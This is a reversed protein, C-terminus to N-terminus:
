TKTIAEDMNYITQIVQMLAALSVTDKIEQHPYEGAEIFKKAKEPSQQFKEKESKYYATLLSLEESKSGRCVILLFAKKIKEEESSKGLMLREALVRSAELMLPENLLLLAQLPTNTVGRKVECQDRNSGDMILMGPPPVTRKIFSYLGRRYLKDGHDQVYRALVGRGSTSSEWIGKPQYVKMSPGGIEKVLLGSSALALDRVGEASLRIRPSRSLLINDPDKERQKKSITSSQQYTASMVLQKMLRKINWGNERFDVALWDLLEPHSPLEGQMGFDGSTKVLGRGFLEQWMRNVFVRATLPNKEHLLWKALALRNNGFATSDFPLIANPLGVDVVEGHADYNGRVLVYTPRKWTTDKMVMVEVPTTDKKNIFTLINEVEESTIKIKPPDALSALQIDGLLGKEPVRNFFAFTRYYDKQSIPDYKHDHCHACEFTLALFAKAFTNTRDTVYEIRYEEDIVGGEQTIKHNRNFGTALLQEKTPNPLLDGALQWTVFKDYAYNQNFAHIVWDRWPWMTRLGDDQYGHSDAYRAVDMWHVAMKEGYQPQALLEDVIKEYADESKDALFRAQLEPSPPLGTLDLSVRKLLREKDAAANPQLGAAEMKELIFYDIENKPWSEDVEPLPHKQPPIFAWHPKYKAGQEIWKEILAIEAANLSLNSNPPPMLVSTDSTSIRLFVESQDPEGPVIAHAAPNDKLAALAGEPTDLRLNAKRQNADPGHCKFCRDSLIPRIHLNYDVSDRVGTISGSQQCDVLLLSTLVCFIGILFRM